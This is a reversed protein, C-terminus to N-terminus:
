ILNVLTSSLVVFLPSIALSPLTTATDRPLARAKSLLYSRRSTSSSSDVDSSFGSWEWSVMTTTRLQRLKRALASSGESRRSIDFDNKRDAARSEIVHLFVHSWFHLVTNPYKNRGSRALFSAPLVLPSTESNSWKTDEVCDRRGYGCRMPCESGRGCGVESYIISIEVCHVSTAWAYVRDVPQISGDGVALHSRCRLRGACRTGNEIMNDQDHARRGRSSCEQGVCDGGLGVVPMAPVPANWYMSDVCRSPLM